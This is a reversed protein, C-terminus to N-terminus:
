TPADERCEIPRNKVNRRERHTREFRQIARFSIPRKAQKLERLRDIARQLAAENREDFRLERDFLEDITPPIERRGVIMEETGDLVRAIQPLLLEKIAKAMEQAWAETNNFDQRRVFRLFHYDWPIRVRDLERWIEQEAAGKVLVKQFALLEQQAQRYSDKDFSKTTNKSLITMTRQCGRKRWMCKAITLVADEELLGDPMWEEVLRTHLRVFELPNEGPLIAVETQDESKEEYVRKTQKSSMQM